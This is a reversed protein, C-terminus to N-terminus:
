TARGRLLRWGELVALAHDLGHCIQAHGGAARIDEFRRCSPMPLGATSLRSSSECLGPRPSHRDRGVRRTARRTGEPARGRGSPSLRREGSSLCVPSARWAGCSARIGGAPHSGRAEDPPHIANPMGSGIPGPSRADRIYLSRIVTGTGFNSPTILGRGEDATLAISGATPRHSSLAMQRGGAQSLDLSLDRGNSKRSKATAETGIQRDTQDTRALVSSPTATIVEEGLAGDTSERVSRVSSVSAAKEERDDAYQSSSTDTKADTQPSVSAVSPKDAKEKPEEPPTYNKHAYQGKRVRKIDEDKVMRGLLLELSNCKMGTAEVLAAIGMPEGVEVLVAIIKARQESIHVESATGLVRWRCSEKKFEIALETSEVDRGRIDLVTGSAKTAMVLITDAAGTM